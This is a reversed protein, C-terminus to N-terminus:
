THDVEVEKISEKIRNMGEVVGRVLDAIAAQNEFVEVPFSVYINMTLDTEDTKFVLAKHDRAFDDGINNSIEVNVNM